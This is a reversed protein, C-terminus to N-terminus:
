WSTKKLYKWYNLFHLAFPFGPSLLLLQSSWWAKENSKSISQSLEQQRQSIGQQTFVETCICVHCVFVAVVREEGTQKKCLTLFPLLFLCVRCLSHELHLRIVSQLISRHTLSWPAKAGPPPTNSLRHEILINDDDCNTIIGLKRVTCRNGLVSSEAQLFAQKTLWISIYCAKWELGTSYFVCNIYINHKRELIELNRKEVHSKPQQGTHKTGCCLVTTIFCLSVERRQQFLRM